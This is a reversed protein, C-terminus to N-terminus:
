IHETQKTDKGSKVMCMASKNDLFILPGEEPVIYPDKNLCVHILMRFHALANGATCAKNYQSKACSQAVPVPVHKVHDIPVGQYFIIYSGTRRTTDPCDQRSSDSFDM